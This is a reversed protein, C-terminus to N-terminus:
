QESRVIFKQYRLETQNGCVFRSWMITLFPTLQSDLLPSTTSTTSPTTCPIFSSKPRRFTRIKLIWAKSFAFDLCFNVEFSQASTENTDLNLRGLAVSVQEVDLQVNNRSVCHGATLVSKTSILTGGCQYTPEPKDYQHYVAAHWPWHHTARFAEKLLPIVNKPGLRGCRATQTQSQIQVLVHLLCIAILQLYKM